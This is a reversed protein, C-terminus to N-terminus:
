QNCLFTDREKERKVIFAFTKEVRVERMWDRERKEERVERMWYRERKEDRVERMWDRERM